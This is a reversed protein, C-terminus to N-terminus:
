EHRVRPDLLSYSLDVLFNLGLLLIAYLLVLGMVMTYDRSLCSNVMFLVSSLTRM